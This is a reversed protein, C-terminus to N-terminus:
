GEYRLANLLLSFVPSSQRRTPYYLHYGPFPACWDKLVRKLRGKAIHPQALTEPVYAVGNGSLEAELILRASNLVLQGEVRVKLAEGNRDFEWAYLGGYTPLHLNICNHAILDRPTKPPDRKAFYSPAAVVAMRMDPSLRVAIMDKAVQDGLRVGADYRLDIIDTLANDIM